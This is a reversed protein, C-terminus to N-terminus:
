TEKLLGNKNNKLKHLIETWTLVHSGTSVQFFRGVPYLIKKDDTKKLTIKNPDYRSVVNHLKLHVDNYKPKQISQM